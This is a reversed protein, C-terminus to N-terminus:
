VGLLYKCKQCSLPWTSSIFNRLCVYSCFLLFRPEPKFFPSLLFGAFIQGRLKARDGAKGQKRSKFAAVLNKWYMNELTMISLLCVTRRIRGKIEKLCLGQLLQVRTDFFSCMNIQNYEGTWLNIFVLVFTHM